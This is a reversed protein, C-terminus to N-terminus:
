GPSATVAVVASTVLLTAAVPAWIRREGASPTVVNLVLSIAAFAVPLWVLWPLSTVLDARVVDAAALVVLALLVLVLGQVVAAARMAPPLRGPYRGGMAYSGWPAGLALALQFAAAGAVVLAFILAGAVTV